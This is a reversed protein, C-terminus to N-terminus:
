LPVEFIQTSLIGNQITVLRYHPPLLCALPEDQMVFPCATSRLGFVPINNIIREYTTHIHGCFIGLVNHGSLIDWFKHIDDAIFEDLWRSGIKILQHHMLIISPLNVNLSQSLFDLTESHATAKSHPGLDLCIFQIGKHVFAVNMLHASLSKPFLYKFFNNRDDHNGPLLYMPLNLLGETSVLVPGPIKASTNKANVMQLFSQYATETPNEVIDGTSVIFDVNTEANQAIHKLVSRFAHRTSFGDLLVTDSETLHHDTIQIFSFNMYTVKHISINHALFGDLPKREHVHPRAHVSSSPLLFFSSAPFISSFAASKGADLARKTLRM